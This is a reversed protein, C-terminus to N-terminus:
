MSEMLKYVDTITVGQKGLAAGDFSNIIQEDTYGLARAKKIDSHIANIATSRTETITSKPQKNGAQAAKQKALANDASRDNIQSQANTYSIPNTGPKVGISEMIAQQKANLGNWGVQQWVLKATEAEQEAKKTAAAEADQKAKQQEVQIARLNDIYNNVLSTAQTAQQQYQDWALQNAQNTQAAKLQQEENWRQRAALTPTSKVMTGQATTYFSPAANFDQVQYNDLKPAQVLNQMKSLLMDIDNSADWTLVPNPAARETIEPAKITQRIREATNHYNAQQAADNTSNYLTGLYALQQQPTVAAGTPSLNGMITTGTQTGTGQVLQGANPGTTYYKYYTGPNQNSEITVTGDPNVNGFMSYPNSSMAPAQVVPAVPAAVVPASVTPASVPASGAYTVPNSATPTSIGMISRLTSTWDAM